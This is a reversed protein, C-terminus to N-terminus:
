LPATRGSLRQMFPREFFHWSVSAFIITITLALPLVQQPTLWAVRKLSNLVPLHWLYIGYSVTGLYLFPYFVIKYIGSMEMACAALVVLACTAAIFTRAFIGSGLGALMPYSVFTWYAAFGALLSIGVRGAPTALRPMLWVGLRSRMLRALLLGAGFEDLMGPLQTNAVFFYFGSLKDEDTVPILRMVGYRWAWTMGISVLALHWWRTSRLWPAALMVLIYFQMETGLSWNAGNMGGSLMPFFNHVFLLHALLNEFFRAFMIEPTIFVSFVLLTLYHLPVIRAFRRRMFPWRFRSPGCRDIEAFASLGIVFGSIVFFLDVGMWGSRFWSLPGTTPFSAWEWHAIIHLMVVSIAAFGRLIDIAEYRFLPASTQPSLDHRPTQTM